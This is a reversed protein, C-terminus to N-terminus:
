FDMQVTFKALRGPMISTPRMFPNVGATNYSTNIALVSSANLANYLDFAPRVRLRGIKVNKGVRLDVQNVRDGFVTGPQILAVAATSGANFNRGLTTQSPTVSLSATVQPGPRNQWVASATLGWWPLPYSGNFKWTPLFFPPETHCYLTSPYASGGTISGASSTSSGPSAQGIVACVDTVEHGTAMGGSLQGGRALRAQFNVDLGTYRDTMQGFTSASTVLFNSIQGFYAPNLDTFGCLQNGGGNPLRSDAPATVCYTDYHSGPQTLNQTAFFNGFWHNSYQVDVSMRRTLAQSIGVDVETDNPRVGWGHLIAPDFATTINLAGLPQSLAGCIDGGTASLDQAGTNALNCDPRFNGNTDKWSRTASNISTNLQNNATATATSEAALYRGYNARVVTRGSGFVDWAVGVRPTIDKWDPVDTVADYHRAAVFTIAPIDQGITQANHYDFRLGLNLTLRKITWRDQVYIGMEANLHERDELPRASESISSPIGSSLSETYAQNTDYIYDRTGWLDQIGFKFAHSGTVYNVAFRANYQHNGATTATAPAGYTVGIASDRKSVVADPGYGNISGPQMGFIWRENYFTGGGELLIRNTLPSTWTAQLLYEPRHTFYTSAEPSTTASCGNCDVLRQNVHNFSTIKNKHSVQWTLNLTEGRNFNDGAIAPSNLDQSLPVLTSPHFADGYQCGAVTACYQPALPNVTKFGGAVYSETGSYRFGGYFWLKDQIIPGGGAPNFDWFKYPQPASLLGQDILSQTLNNASMSTNAFNGLFYGIFRNAGEKPITNTLVGSTRSEASLGSTTVTMEQVTGMNIVLTTNYGGGTNNMNNYPMGNMVLPMQDARSGHVSMTQYRENNSGGVDTNTLPVSVAPVLISFDQWSRGTPIADLVDSPLSKRQTVSQTDILPSQGSVTVSEELTGVRLEANVQATFDSTLEIGDRKVSTFGTLSFTVVYAPDCIM